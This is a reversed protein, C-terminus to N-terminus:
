FLKSDQLISSVLLLPLVLCLSSYDGSSGGLFISRFSLVLVLYGAALVSLPYFLLALLSVPAVGAVIVLAFYKAFFRLTVPVRFLFM